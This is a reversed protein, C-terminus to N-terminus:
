DVILVMKGVAGKGCMLDLHAQSASELPYQKGLILQVWGTAVGAQIAAHAESLEGASSQFLRLGLISTEGRMVDRPNVAVHGRGGVVVVRGSASLLSLDDGLHVNAAMEVILDIGREASALRIKDLYRPERHNFVLHAGAKLVAKRGEETGSTGLVHLGYGRALQVTATGVGGSAGHM